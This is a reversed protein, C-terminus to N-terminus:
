ISIFKKVLGEAEEVNKVWQIRKDKKFWTMQRKAYQRTNQKLIEIAEVLTKEGRLYLGIQRYGIGSMSPLNWAHGDSVLQKVEEVLGAEIQKDVRSNIRKFLEEKPVDLGIQLTDFLPNSKTRQDFFSQGTSMVVELARIVRRPNKLDIKTASEPDKEILMSVLEVLSKTELETRLENNPQTKPIDLNDILAWMYLGTGGVVIPTKRRKLIDNICDIAIKKFDALTFDADPNVIDMLHHPIGEVVYVSSDNVWEGKTKATGIDMKKYIQRSDASIIEGNYKKALSLGLDTKGSATPGLIVIIKPLKNQM